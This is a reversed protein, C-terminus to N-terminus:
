QGNKIQMKTTVIFTLLDNTILYKFLWIGYDYVKQMSLTM